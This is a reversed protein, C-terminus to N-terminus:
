TVLKNMKRCLKRAVKDANTRIATHRMRIFTRLRAFLNVAEEPVGRCNVSEALFNALTRVVDACTHLGDTGYFDLFCQELQVVVNFFPESPTM